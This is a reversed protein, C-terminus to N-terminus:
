VSRACEHTYSSLGRTRRIENTTRVKFGCFGDGVNNLFSMFAV